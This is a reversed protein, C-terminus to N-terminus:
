TLGGCAAIGTHMRGALMHVPVPIPMRMHQSICMHNTASPLHSRGVCQGDPYRKEMPPPQRSASGPGRYDGVHESRREEQEYSMKQYSALNLTPVSLVPALKLTSATPTTM